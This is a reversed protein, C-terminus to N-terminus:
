IMKALPIEHGKPCVAKYEQEAKSAPIKVTAGCDPCKVEVIDEDSNAM